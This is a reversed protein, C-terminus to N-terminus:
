GFKAGCIPSNRAWVSNLLESRKRSLAAFFASTARKM